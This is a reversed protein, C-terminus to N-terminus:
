RAIARRSAGVTGQGSFAQCDTGHSKCIQKRIVSLPDPYFISSRFLFPINQNDLFGILHNRGSTSIITQDINCVKNENDNQLNDFSDSSPVATAKDSNIEEFSENSSSESFSTEVIEDHNTINDDSGSASSNSRTESCERTNSSLVELKSRLESNQSNLSRIMEKAQELEIDKEKSVIFAENNIKDDKCNVMDPTSRRKLEESLHKVQNRLNNIQIDKEQFHVTHHLSSLQNEVFRALSMEPQYKWRLM